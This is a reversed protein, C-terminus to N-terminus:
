RWRRVYSSPSYIRSRRKRSLVAWHIEVLRNRRDESSLQSQFILLSLPRTRPDVIIAGEDGGAAQEGVEIDLGDPRQAEVYRHMELLDGVLHYFLSRKESRQMLGSKACLPNSTAGCM